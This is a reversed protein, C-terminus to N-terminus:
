TKAVSMNIGYSFWDFPKADYVMKLNARKLYSNLFIGQQDTYNLFTGFSSNENGSRIGLQHNHSVAARTAEKQWDTDYRPNGNQDFLRDNNLILQPEQGPAYDRYIPANAYARRQVEMFEEANLADMRNAMVSLGINGNYEVITGNGSNGRKTTVLVVGNAGRAGYISTASADKLVEISSIDNPNMTEINDIAVGDVVYLPNSSANITGVGRIVVRNAGGPAGSNTYINVGAVKGRLSQLANFSPQKQLESGSIMGVAGTVETRRQTGYGVVVVEDLLESDSILQISVESRGDVPVEVTQYGIYSFVLIANENVDPITYTGDFDTATGKDTGKVQVNVGILPENNVDTVTGSVNLVLGTLERYPNDHFKRLPLQSTSHSLYSDDEGVIKKMHAMMKRLSIMGKEDKRYIIVFQQDFMKFHLDTGKLISSIADELSRTSESHYEVKINEVLKRDFSFYVGYDKSIEEIAEVLTIEQADLLAPLPPGSYGSILILLLPLSLWWKKQTFGNLKM